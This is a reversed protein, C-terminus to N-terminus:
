SFLLLTLWVAQSRNSKGTSWNLLKLHQNKKKCEMFRGRLVHNSSCGKAVHGLGGLPFRTVDKVEPYKEAVM